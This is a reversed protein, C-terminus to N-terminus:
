RMPLVRAQRSTHSLPMTLVRKWSQAGHIGFHRTGYLFLMYVLNRVRLSGMGEIAARTSETMNEMCDDKCLLVIVCGPEVWEIMRTLEESEMSSGHTDFVATEIVTLDLADLVVVNVGRSFSFPIDQLMGDREIEVRCFNGDYFGGSQATIKLSSSVLESGRTESSAVGSYRDEIQRWRDATSNNEKSIVNTMNTFEAASM